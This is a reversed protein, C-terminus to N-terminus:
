THERKAAERVVSMSDALSLAPCAIMRAVPSVDMKSVASCVDHTPPQNNCTICKPVTRHNAVNHYGQQIRTSDQETTDHM